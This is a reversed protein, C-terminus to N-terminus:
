IRRYIFDPIELRRRNLVTGLVNAGARRLLDNARALVPRKTRGAQVVIVAGDGISALPAAEPSELLPPSDVVIWDYDSGVVELADRVAAVPLPEGHRLRDALPFLDVRGRSSRDRVSASQAAALLPSPRAQNADVVLVRLGAEGAMTEAFQLAVTTTGEGPQASVLVVTRPVRASLASELHIRLATM